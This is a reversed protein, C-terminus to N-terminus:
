SQGTRNRDVAGSHCIPEALAEFGPARIQVIVRAMSSRHGSVDCVRLIPSEFGQPSEGLVSELRAGYAM